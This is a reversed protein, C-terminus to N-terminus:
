WRGNGLVRVVPRQHPVFFVHKLRTDERHSSYIESQPNRNQEEVRSRVPRTRTECVRIFVSAPINPIRRIKSGFLGQM